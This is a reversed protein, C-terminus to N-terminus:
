ILSRTYSAKDLELFFSMAAHDLHERGRGTIIIM